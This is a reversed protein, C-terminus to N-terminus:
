GKSYHLAIAGSGLTKSDVLKLESREPLNTGDFLRKGEKIILPHVVFYFEDILGREMLQLPLDVGGVSINKGEEQKLRSIEEVLNSHMLRTKSDEVRNLTKSFVIKDIANFTQAYTRDAKSANLDNEVDPWYPIMLEYTKRGYVILDIDAFFATFYDLTDGGGGFKTHDYCGDLSINIAYILKRM